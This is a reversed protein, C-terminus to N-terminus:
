SSNETVTEIGLDEALEPGIASASFSLRREQSLFVDTRHDSVQTLTYISEVRVSGYGTHTASCPLSIRRWAHERIGNCKMRAVSAPLTRNGRRHLPTWFLRNMQTYKKRDAM